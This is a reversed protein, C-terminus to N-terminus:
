RRRAPKPRARPAASFMIRWPGHPRRCGAMPSSARECASRTSVKANREGDRRYISREVVVPGAMTYYTAEHRGVRTYFLGGIRVKEVDLDLGALLSRHAEREISAAAAGVEREINAYDISKGGS